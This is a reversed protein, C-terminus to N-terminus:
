KPVGSLWGEDWAERLAVHNLQWAGPHMANYAYPNDSRSVGDRAASRGAQWAFAKRQHLPISPAPMTDRPKLDHRSLSSGIPSAQALSADGSSVM